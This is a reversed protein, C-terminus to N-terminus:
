VLWIFSHFLVNDEEFAALNGEFYGSHEQEHQQQQEWTRWDQSYEWTVASAWPVFSRLKNALSCFPQCHCTVLLPRLGDFSAALLFIFYFFYFFLFIFFFLFLCLFCLVAVMVFAVVPVPVCISYLTGRILEGIRWMFEDCDLRRSGSSHSSWVSASYSSTSLWNIWFVRCNM